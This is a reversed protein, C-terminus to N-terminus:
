HVLKSVGVPFFPQRSTLSELLYICRCDSSTETHTKAYSLTTSKPARVMLFENRVQQPFHAGFGWSQSTATLWMSACPDKSLIEKMSKNITCTYRHTLTTEGQSTQQPDAPHLSATGDRQSPARWSVLTSPCCSGPLAM